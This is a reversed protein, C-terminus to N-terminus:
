FLALYFVLTDNYKYTLSYIFLKGELVFHLSPLIRNYSHKIYFLM